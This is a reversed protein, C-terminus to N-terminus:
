YVKIVVLILLKTSFHIEVLRFSHLSPRASFTMATSRVEGDPQQSRTPKSRAVGFEFLTKENKEIDFNNRFVTFSM